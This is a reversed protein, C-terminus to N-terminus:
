VMIHFKAQLGGFYNEIMVWASSLDQNYTAQMRDLPLRVPKKKPTVLTIAPEDLERIYGKDALIKTPGGEHFMIFANLHHQHDKFLKM